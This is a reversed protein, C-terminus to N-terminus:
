KSNVGVFNPANDTFIKSCKGRRAMFQKLYTGLHIAQTIFCISVSIFIKNMAGKHQNKCTVFFYFVFIWVLITLYLPNMLKSVPLEVM